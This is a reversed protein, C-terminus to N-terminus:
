MYQSMGPSPTVYVTVYMTGQSPTVYVTVYRSKRLVLDLYTVTYM